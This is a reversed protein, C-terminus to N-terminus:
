MVKTTEAKITEVIREMAEIFIAQAKIGEISDVMKKELKAGTFWLTPNGADQVVQRVMPEAVEDTLARVFDELSLSLEIADDTVQIEIKPNNWKRLITVKKM